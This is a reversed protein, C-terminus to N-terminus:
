DAPTFDVYFAQGEKFPAAAALNAANFEIKGTPTAAFFADNEASGGYVPLLVVTAVPVERIGYAGDEGTTGVNMSGPTTSAVQFKARVVPGTPEPPASDAHREQMKRAWSQMGPDQYTPEPM